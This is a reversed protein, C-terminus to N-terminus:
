FIFDRIDYVLMEEHRYHMSKQLFRHMAPVKAYSVTPQSTINYDRVM